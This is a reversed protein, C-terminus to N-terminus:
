SQKQYFYLKIEAAEAMSQRRKGYSDSLKTPDTPCFDAYDDSPDYM